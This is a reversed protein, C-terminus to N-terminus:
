MEKEIAQADERSPWRLLAGRGVRASFQPHIRTTAPAAARVQRLLAEREQAAMFCAKAHEHADHAGFIRM